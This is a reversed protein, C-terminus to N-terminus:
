TRGARGKLRQPHRRDDQRQRHHGRRRTGDGRTAAKCSCARKRLAALASLGDIKPEATFALESERGLGFFRRRAGVFDVVDQDTYAKALSLMPVAHRVKAFREAPPAGVRKSPSDERVLEPFRQRSRSTAAACRMMNPMRFRRRTRSTTAATTSPSRRPWGRSSPRPRPKADTARRAQRVTAHQSM